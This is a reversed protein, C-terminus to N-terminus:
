HDLAKFFLRLNLKQRWVIAIQIVVATLVWANLM